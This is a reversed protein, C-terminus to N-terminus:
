RQQSAAEFAPVHVSLQNQNVETEDPTAPSAGAPGAPRNLDIGLRQLYAILAVAQTNMVLYDGQKVPGGQSVIEAAVEEAQLRAMEPADELEREYPVGLRHAVRVRETVKAFDLERNLLHEFSPMVSEPSVQQPEELHLWHWLSNQRGGLRALDPGIRRSGWQFPRDYISEGARSYDGYRITETVIHRVMQSHCNHCGESVYIDRGVLELPTYPRVSDVIPVNGRILFMPLLGVASAVLVVSLILLSFKVPLREWQQHWRARSWVDLRKALELVPKDALESDVRISASEDVPAASEDVPTLPHVSYLRQDYSAPRSGWTMLFNIGLTVVGALFVAGGLARVWWYPIVTQLTEVFEPYVLRGTDDLERWMLGQTLGAIYIPVIYLLIGITALWFHVTALSTSWLKTQFLRPMLWYLMGFTMMGNWGLTGTHIQAVTWDTYHTLANVSRISILSASFTALGYFTLGAVFFKLVPDGAVTGRVGRLTLLGNILGGWYPMWLMLGFIMGITSLWQPMATYHLHHPGALIGIMVLSWFHLIALRYSYIPREAAKPVFYYMLGLFPMILIFDIMNHGYWWQVAADQVGAFLPLSQFLDLPLVLNNLIHLLAITVLTALYFWLSVYMHRERRGILTMLFNIGFFGIWAIAFAIDIPWQFEAFAKGQTLGLPLTVAGAIIIAQWSWFHLQSLFGSWMRCRCLRQTSYYIAAFIANGIFAFLGVNTHVPRLRGFTLYEGAPGLEYFLKPLVMLLAILVGGFMALAGWVVTAAAFMRVIADDYSFNDREGTPPHGTSSATESETVATAMM